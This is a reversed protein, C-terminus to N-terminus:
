AMMMSPQATRAANAAIIGCLPTSQCIIDNQNCETTSTQMKGFNTNSVALQVSKMIEPSFAPAAVEATQMPPTVSPSFSSISTPSILSGVALLGTASSAILGSTKGQASNCIGDLISVVTDGFHQAADRLYEGWGGIHTQTHAMEDTM